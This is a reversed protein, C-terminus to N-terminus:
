LNNVQNNFMTFWQHALAKQKELEGKLREIEADKIALLTTAIEACAEAAQDKQEDTILYNGETVADIAAKFKQKM